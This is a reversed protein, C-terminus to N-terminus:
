NGSIVLDNFNGCHANFVFLDDVAKRRQDIGMTFYRCKNGIQGIDGILHDSISHFFRISQRFKQLKSAIGNQNGV